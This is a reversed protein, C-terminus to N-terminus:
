KQIKNILTRESIKNYSTIFDNIFKEVEEKNDEAWFDFLNTADFIDQNDKFWAKYREREKEQSYRESDPGEDKVVQWTFNLFSAKQWYPHESDLNYLYDYLVKEPSVKGPLKIINNLHNRVTKQNPTFTNENVDGDFVIIKDSFYVPDAAYMTMLAACGVCVDLIDVYIQYNHILNRLFWRNEADETYVKVKYKRTLASQVFLDGEISPYSINRRIDLKKNANSFYYLEINNNKENDNHGTKECIFKLLEASHTTIVVQFDNKKANRILLRILREQAAPHLTADIEDIILLGGDINSNEEKLKKLSLIALLIQGLNDQGSSNTLYDYNKTEIAVGKKKDTEAITYNNIDNIEDNLSLINTYNDIFWKKHEENVFKINKSDINDEKAEGIPFLRSLGLYIVPVQMKSETQKGDENVRSPIVRFRYGDGDKQWTTRFKVQNTVNDDGVNIQLKNSGAIDFDKSGHLIESFEARFRRNSYTTGDKKKLEGSNALLGLITSKGTANRGAIVTLQKGLKITVDKFQRFDNIQIEKYM